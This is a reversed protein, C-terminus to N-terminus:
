RVKGRAGGKGFDRKAQAVVERKELLGAVPSVLPVTRARTGPSEERHAESPLGGAVLTGFCRASERCEPCYASADDNVARHVAFVRGCACNMQFSYASKM